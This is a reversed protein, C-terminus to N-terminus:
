SKTASASPSRSYSVSDPSSILASSLPSFGARSRPSSVGGERPEATGLAPGFFPVSAPFFPSSGSAPMSGCGCYIMKDSCSRDTKSPGTGVKPIM